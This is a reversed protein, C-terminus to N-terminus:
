NFVVYGLVIVCILALFGTFGNIPIGASVWVALYLGAIIAPINTKRKGTSTSEHKDPQQKKQKEADKVLTFFMAADKADAKGDQNWDQM